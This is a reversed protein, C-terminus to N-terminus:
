LIISIQGAAEYGRYKPSWEFDGWAALKRDAPGAFVSFGVRSGLSRILVLPLDNWLLLDMDARLVKQVSQTYSHITCKDTDLMLLSSQAYWIRMQYAPLRRQARNEATSRCELEM